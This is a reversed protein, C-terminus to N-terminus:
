AVKRRVHSNEYILKQALDEAHKKVIYADVRGDWKRVLAFKAYNQLAIIKERQSRKRYIPVWKDSFVGDLFAIEKETTNPEIYKQNEDTKKADMQIENQTTISSNEAQEIM